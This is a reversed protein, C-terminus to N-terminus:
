PFCLAGLSKELPVSVMTGSVHFRDDFVCVIVVLLSIRVAPNRAVQWGGIAFATRLAELRTTREQENVHEGRM